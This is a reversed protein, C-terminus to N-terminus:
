IQVSANLSNKEVLALNLYKDIDSLSFTYKLFQNEKYKNKTAQLNSLEFAIPARTAINRVSTVAWPAVVLIVTYSFCAENIIPM